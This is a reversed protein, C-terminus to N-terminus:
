SATSSSQCLTGPNLGKKLASILEPDPFSSWNAWIPPSGLRRELTMLSTGAVCELVIVGVGPFLPPPRSGSEVEDVSETRALSV